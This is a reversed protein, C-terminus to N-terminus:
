KGDVVVLLGSLTMFLYIPSLYVTEGGPTATRARSDGAEPGCTVDTSHGQYGGLLHKSEFARKDLAQVRIDWM